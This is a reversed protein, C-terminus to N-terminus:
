LRRGTDFKNVDTDTSLFQPGDFGRKFNNIKCVRTPIDASINVRLYTTSAIM